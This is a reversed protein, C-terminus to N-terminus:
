AEPQRGEAESRQWSRDAPLGGFGGAPQVLLHRGSRTAAAAVLIPGPTIAAVDGPAGLPCGMAASAAALVGAVQAARWLGRRAGAAAPRCSIVGPSDAAREGRRVGRHMKGVGGEPWRRDRGFVRGTSGGGPWGRLAAKGGCELLSPGEREQIQRSMKSVLSGERRCSLPFAGGESLPYTQVM